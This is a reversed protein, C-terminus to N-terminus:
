GVSPRAHTEYMRVAVVLGAAATLAAVAWIAITLGFADALIGALVAGVAFGGDRWLRYVGVARARWAPHPVD